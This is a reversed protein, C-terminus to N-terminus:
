SIRAGCVLIKGYYNRKSSSLIMGLLDDDIGLFGSPSIDNITCFPDIILYFFCKTLPNSLKMLGTMYMELRIMHLNLWFVCSFKTSLRVTFIHSTYEHQFLHYGILILTEECLDRRM